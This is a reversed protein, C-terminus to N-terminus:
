PRRARQGPSGARWGVRPARRFVLLYGMRGWREQGHELEFGAATLERVVDERYVGHGRPSAGHGGLWRLLGRPEFDIVALRGGPAMSAFLSRTLPAPQTLHHYVHRLYVIECCAVPLGTDNEGAPVVTVNDLGEHVAAARIAALRREDLETAFVHGSPGVRRAVQVALWGDGAGVDAVRMGPAIALTEVLRDAESWGVLRTLHVGSAAAVAAAAIVLAALLLTLTWARRARPRM